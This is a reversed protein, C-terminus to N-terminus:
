DRVRSLVPRPGTAEEAHGYSGTALFAIAWAVLLGLLAGLAGNVTARPGPAKAATTAPKAVELSAIAVSSQVRANADKSYLGSLTDAYQAQLWNGAADKGPATRILRTLAHEQATLTQHYLAYGQELRAREQQIFVAAVANALRITLAPDPWQVYLRLLQCQNSNTSTNLSVCDQESAIGSLDNQLAATSVDPVLRHVGRVVGANILLDGGSSTGSAAFYTGQQGQPAAGTSVIAVANYTTKTLAKTLGYAVGGGVLAGLVLLWWWRRLVFLNRQLELV